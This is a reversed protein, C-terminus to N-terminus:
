SKSTHHERIKQIIKLHNWDSWNNSTDIIIIIPSTSKCSTAIFFCTQNSNADQGM